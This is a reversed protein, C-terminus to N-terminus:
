AFMAFLHRWDAFMQPQGSAHVMAGEPRPEDITVVDGPSYTVLKEPNIACPNYWRVTVVNRM